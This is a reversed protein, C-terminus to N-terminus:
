FKAQEFATGNFKYLSHEHTGLWLTGRHDCYISFATIPNGDAMVPYHRLTTGDHLWVGTGYTVLCLHGAHDKAM